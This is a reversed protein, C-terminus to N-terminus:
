RSSLGGVSAARDLEETSSSHAGYAHAMEASLMYSRTQNRPYCVFTTRQMQPAKPHPVATVYIMQHGCKPCSALMAYDSEM